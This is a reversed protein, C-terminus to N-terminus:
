SNAAQTLLQEMGPHFKQEKIKDKDLWIFELSDGYEKSTFLRPEPLNLMYGIYITHQTKDTPIYTWTNILKPEVTLKFGIEEQLERGLAELLTEGFQVHGGPVDRLGHKAKYYLVKNKSRFVIKVSVEIQGRSEKAM